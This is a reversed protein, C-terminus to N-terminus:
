SCTVPLVAHDSHCALQPVTVAHQSSSYANVKVNTWNQKTKHYKM